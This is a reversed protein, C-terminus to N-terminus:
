TVADRIEASVRDLNELASRVSDRRMGQREAARDLQAARKDLLRRNEEPATGGLNNHARVFDEPDLLRRVTETDVGPRRVDLYAAAEDLLEGTCEYSKLGKERAMRVMTAVISHALRGGYGHEKVLCSAVETACSYGARVIKLMREKQPISHKLLDHYTGICAQAKVM